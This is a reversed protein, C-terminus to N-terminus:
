VFMQQLLGKKLEKWKDCEYQCLAIYKDLGILAQGIKFQEDISPAMFAYANLEDRNIKPIGSRKSVSVSYDYFDQTQLVAFLFSQDIGNKANLVYADASTLGSFTVLAYKGLQPNIKGYIIDGASFRFKGSILNEEKVLKINDYLRGSFSEINGPAVHPLDDYLGTKPDVMDTSIDVTDSWKHKRWPGTFGPLRLEPVSKGKKPFMKQLMGKKLEKWKDIENQITQTYMDVCSLFSGINIQEDILEPIYVQMNLFAEPKLSRLKVVTGETLQSIAKIFSDRRVLYEMFTPDQSTTFIRYIPSLCGKGMKNRHIAGFVVNAPNYIIDNFESILYKKNEEDKILFDRKNTKRDKPDIVGEEITFSLRPYEGSVTSFEHREELLSELRRETWEGVFGPFRIKPVNKDETM